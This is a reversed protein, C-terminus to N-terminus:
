LALIIYVLLLLVGFIIMLRLNAARKAKKVPKIRYTMRGRIREEATADVAYDPDKGQEVRLQRRKKERREKDPDYFVPQYNFMSYNPLRFFGGAM